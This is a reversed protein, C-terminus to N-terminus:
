PKPESQNAAQSAAATPPLAIVTAKGGICDDGKGDACTAPSPQGHQAGRHKHTLTLVITAATVIALGVTLVKRRLSVPRYRDPELM